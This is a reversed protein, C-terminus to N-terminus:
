FRHCCLRDTINNELMKSFILYLEDGNYDDFLIYKNFRSKLGPNSNIFKPMLKSYGAVIVVFDDRYDEM